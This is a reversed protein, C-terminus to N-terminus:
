PCTKPPRSAPSSLMFPLLVMCTLVACMSYSLAWTYSFTEWLFGLLVNGILVSLGNLFHFFGFCTGRKESPCVDSLFAMFCTQVVGFQIGYFFAASFVTWKNGPLSLFVICVGLSVLGGILVWRRGIADAIWGAPFAVLFSGINQVIMVFPLLAMTVGVDKARVMMFSISFNGLMCVCSLIMLKWCDPPLLSIEQTIEAFNLRKRPPLSVSEPPEKLAFILLFVALFSPIIAFLFLAHFNNGTHWMFLMAIISGILSGLVTLTQRLGYCQGANSSTALDAVLADRPSAQIGNGLREPIRSLIVEGTTTSFAFFVRSLATLVYGILILVKRKRLYDSLVGAAIRAFFSMSEVLGEIFGLGAVSVLLVERLFMPSFTVVIVSSINKLLTVFGICWVGAPISSWRPKPTEAM